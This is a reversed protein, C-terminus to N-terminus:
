KVAIDIVELGWNVHGHCGGFVVTKRGKELLELRNKIFEEHFKGIQRSLQGVLCQNSRNERLGGRLQPFRSLIFNGLAAAGRRLAGEKKEFGGAWL